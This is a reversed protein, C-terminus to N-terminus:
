FKIKILDFVEINLKLNRITKPKSMKQVPYTEHDLHM